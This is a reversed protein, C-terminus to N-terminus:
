IAASSLAFMATLALSLDGSIKNLCIKPKVNLSFDADVTQPGNANTSVVGYLYLAAHLEAPAQLETQPVSMLILRHQM